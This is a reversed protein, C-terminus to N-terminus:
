LPWLRTVGAKYGSGLAAAILGPWWGFFIGAIVGGPVGPVPWGFYQYASFYVLNFLVESVVFMLWGFLVARKFSKGCLLVLTPVVLWPLHTVLLTAWFAQTAHHYDGLWIATDFYLLAATIIGWGSLKRKAGNTM